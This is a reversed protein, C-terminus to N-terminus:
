RPNISKIRSTNIKGNQLGFGSKNQM